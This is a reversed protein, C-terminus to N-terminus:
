NNINRVFDTVFHDQLIDQNLILLIPNFTGQIVHLVLGILKDLDSHCRPGSEVPVDWPLFSDKDRVIGQFPLSFAIHRILVTQFIVQTM